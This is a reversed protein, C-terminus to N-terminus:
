LRVARDLYKQLRNGNKVFTRLGNGDLNIYVERKSNIANVVERTYQRYSETNVNVDLSRRLDKNSIVDAGSPLYTMTATNPTLFTEGSTLRIAEQGAEGVVAFEAQGGKRGKAYKPIPQAAVLAAQAAGTALVLALQIPNAAVKAAAVATNIAIEWLAEQKKIQAERIRAAKRKAEYQKEINDRGQQYQQDNILGQEKRKELADLEKDHWAELQTTMNEISAEFSASIQDSIGTGFTEIALDQLDKYAKEWEEGIKDPPPPLLREPKLKMGEDILLEVSKKAKIASKNTLELPKALGPTESLTDLQKKQLELEDRKIRWQRVQLSDQDTASKIKDDYDSISKTLKQYASAQKETKKSEDKVGGEKKAKAAAKAAAEEERRLKYKRDIEVNLLDLAKKRDETANKDAAYKVIQKELGVRRELNKLLSESAFMDQMPNSGLKEFSDYTSNLLKLTGEVVPTILKGFNEKTEQWLISLKSTSTAAAEAFGAYKQTVFEIAAGNQLQEKSFNQFESAWRGLGRINGEMTALLMVAASHVDQGTVAAFDLSAQTVKKIQESTLNHTAALTQVEIIAEDDVGTIKQLEGAQKILSRVSEERGQLANKLKREEKIQGEYALFSEKFFNLIAAGGLAVGLTSFMNKIAGVYNGVNRQHNGLDSDIAKLQQGYKNAEDRAQKYETSNRGFQVGLSKARATAEKYQENLKDYASTLGATEKAEQNAAKNVRDTEIKVKAKAEALKVTSQYYEGEVDTLKEYTKNLEETKKKLKDIEGTIQNVGKANKVGTFMNSLEASTTAAENRIYKLMGAWQDTQKQLAPIDAYETIKGM